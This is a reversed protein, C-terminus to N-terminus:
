PWQLVNSCYTFGLSQGAIDMFSNYKVTYKRLYEGNGHSDLVRNNAGLKQLCLPFLTPISQSHIDTGHIFTMCPGVVWSLYSHGSSVPFTFTCTENTAFTQKTKIRSKNKDKPWMNM